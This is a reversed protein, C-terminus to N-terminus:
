CKKSMFWSGISHGVLLVSTEPGYAALLEDLFELHAQVQAPLTVSSTIPFSRDGGIFSSLGLACPRLHNRIVVQFLQGRQLNHGFVARLLRTVRPKRFLSFNCTSIFVLLCTFLPTLFPSFLTCAGPIFLLVTRSPPMVAM